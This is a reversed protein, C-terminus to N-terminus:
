IDKKILKKILKEKVHQPVFGDVNGGFKAVEKVITSNLYSYKEHPMLFVTVPSENLKRNMLAMQLEYEFDSVARLGRIIAHANINTAYDVLLGDFSEVTVGNLNKVSERILDIREDVSLLPTKQLNMAVSVVVNDFILSAREIIDIHGYTIPDFSGPYIALKKNQNEMNM